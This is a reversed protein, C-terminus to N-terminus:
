SVVVFGLCCSVSFGLFRWFSPTFGEQRRSLVKRCIRRISWWSFVWLLSWVAEVTRVLGVLKRLSSRFGSVVCRVCVSPLGNRRKSRSRSSSLWGWVVRFVFVWFVVLVRVSFDEQRRSLVKRRNKWTSRCSFVWLLFGFRGLVESWELKRLSLRFDSVVCSM